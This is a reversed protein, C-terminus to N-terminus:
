TQIVERVFYELDDNTCKNALQALRVRESSFTEDLDFLDLAPPPLQRFSPPFVAPELPPLPCEFQPQIVTLPEHKVRLADYAQVADAVASTEISYLSHDFLTTFDRPVDDGDQLCVRPLEAM